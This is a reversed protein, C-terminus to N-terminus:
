MLLPLGTELRGLFKRAMEVTLRAESPPKWSFIGTTSMTMPKAMAQSMRVRVAYPIRM